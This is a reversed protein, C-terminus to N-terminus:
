KNKSLEVLQERVYYSVVTTVVATAAALALHGLIKPM